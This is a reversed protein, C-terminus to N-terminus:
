GGFDFMAIDLLTGPFDDALDQLSTYNDAIDQLTYGAAEMADPWPETEYAELQWHRVDNYWTRDESDSVAALHNDIGELTVQKRILIVGETAGDLVTQLADGAADTETRVTVTAQAPSRPRSVAVIRGGVNFVSSDRSRKKDPWSVITVAAGIGRVADSIVDSTVTSTLTSSYVQWTLGNVDTLVALYEHAVGFPQEADVRLLADQGTVDVSTAARVATLTSGVQRYLSVTVIDDALLGTASILNRPPFVSQASAEMDASAERLRIVGAVGTTAAAATAALTPAQTGSGATVSATAAALRGANGSTIQDDAQETVTGYTIGTATIAEATLSATSVPLAYGIVAFDGAAWTLASAGAASFATGSTTDEGSSAAWRWSIGASRSLVHIRGAIVSGTGTPLSTTPAAETGTLIRVFWTLRRPGTGSGFTGGGGSFSELLTWGSPTSPISDDPHGSVVQLLALRGSTAGAPFAPTISTAAQSLAGAAIYSIAM